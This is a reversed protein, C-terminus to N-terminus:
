ANNSYGMKDRDVGSYGHNDLCFISYMWKHIDRKVKKVLKLITSIKRHKESTSFHLDKLNHPSAQTVLAM